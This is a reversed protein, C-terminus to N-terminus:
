TFGLTAKVYQGPGPPMGGQVGLLPETDELSTYTLIEANTSGAGICLVSSRFLLNTELLTGENKKKKGREKKGRLDRVPVTEMRRVRGGYVLETEFAANNCLLQRLCMNAPRLISPRIMKKNDIKKECTDNNRM